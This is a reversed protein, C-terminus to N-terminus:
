QRASATSGRAEVRHPVATLRHPADPDEIRAALRELAIRAFERKDFAITTLPPVAFRAEAIDDFGAVSVDGPVSLGASWLANIAGMAMSDTFCFVADPTRGSRLLAAVADAAGKPSWTAAVELRPDILLGASRIAARHGLLRLEATATRCRPGPAGVAAIRRHGLALLHATMDRAAAVPDVWVQDAFGQRVEGIIVIPPLHRADPVRSEELTAPNLVAGDILRARARAVLSWSREPELLTEELQVGWGRDHSIQVFHHTMEASYPTGLDPMALAIIGSRGNRLGRASLNPVYGLEDVASEVRVRTEPRVAVGTSLVNSVTKPSVGARAAVDKVTPRTQAERPPERGTTM